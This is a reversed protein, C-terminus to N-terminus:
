GEGGGRRTVDGSSRDAAHFPHSSRASRSPNSPVHRPLARLRTREGALCLVCKRWSTKRISANHPLTCCALTCVIVRQFSSAAQRARASATHRRRAAVTLAAIFVLVGVVGILVYRGPDLPLHMVSGGTLAVGLYLAVYLVYPPLVECM